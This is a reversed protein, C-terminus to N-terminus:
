AILTLIHFQTCVCAGHLIGNDASAQLRPVLTKDILVREVDGSHKAVTFTVLIGNSLLVQLTHYVNWRYVLGHATCMYEYLVEGERERRVLCHRLGKWKM